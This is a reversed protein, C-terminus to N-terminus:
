LNTTEVHVTGFNSPKKINPSEKEPSKGYFTSFISNAFYNFRSPKEKGEDTRPSEDSKQSDGIKKRLEAEKEENFENENQNNSIFNFKIGQKVIKKKLFNTFISDSKPNKNSDELRISTETTKRKLDEFMGQFNTNENSDEGSEQVIEWLSMRKKQVGVAPQPLVTSMRRNIAQNSTIWSSGKGKRNQQFKNMPKVLKKETEDKEDSNKNEEDEDGDNEDIVISMLSQDGASKKRYNSNGYVSQNSYLMENKLDRFRSSYNENTIETSPPLQSANDRRKLSPAPSSHRRTSNQDNTDFTVTSGKRPMSPSLFSSNFNSPTASSLSAHRPNLHANSFESKGVEWESDRPLDWRSGFNSSDRSSRSRSSHSCISFSCESNPISMKSHDSSGDSEIIIYRRPGLQDYGSLVSMDDFDLTEIRSIHIGPLDFQTPLIISAGGLSAETSRRRGAGPAQFGSGGIYSGIISGSQSYRSRADFSPLRSSRRSASDMSSHPSSHTNKILFVYDLFFNTKEQKEVYCAILHPYLYKM